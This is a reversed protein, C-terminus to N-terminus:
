PNSNIISIYLYKHSDREIGESFIEASVQTLNTSVAVRVQWGTALACGVPEVGFQSAIALENAESEFANAKPDNASPTIARNPPM